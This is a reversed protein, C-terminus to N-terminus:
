GPKDKIQQFINEINKAVNEVSKKDDSVSYQNQQSNQYCTQFQDFSNSLGYNSGCNQMDPSPSLNNNNLLNAKEHNIWTCIIQTVRTDNIINNTITLYSHMMQTHLQNLKGLLLIKLNEVKKNHMLVSVDSNIEAVDLKLKLLKNKYESLRLNLQESCLKMCQKLKNRYASQVNGIKNITGYIEATEENSLNDTLPNFVIKNKTSISIIYPFQKRNIMYKVNSLSSLQISQATTISNTLLVILDIDHYKKFFELHTSAFSPLDNDNLNFVFLNGRCKEQYIVKFNTLSDFCNPPVVLAVNRIIDPFKKKRITKILKVHKELKLSDSIKNYMRTLEKVASKNKDCTVLSAKIYYESDPTSNMLLMGNVCVSDNINFEIFSQYYCKIKYKGNASTIFFYSQDTNISVAKGTVSIEKTFSLDHIKNIKKYLLSLDM